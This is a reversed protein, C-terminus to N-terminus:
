KIWKKQMKKLLLDYNLKIKIVILKCNIVLETTSLLLDNNLKIKIVILQILICYIMM